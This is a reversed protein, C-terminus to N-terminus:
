RAARKSAAVTGRRAQGTQDMEAVLDRPGALVAGIEVRAPCAAPGCGSEQAMDDVADGSEAPRFTEILPTSL